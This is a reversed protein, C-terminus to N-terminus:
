CGWMLNQQIHPKFMNVDEYATHIQHKWKESAEADHLHNVFCKHNMSVVRVVDFGQNWM